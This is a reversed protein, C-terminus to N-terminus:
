SSANRSAVAKRSRRLASTWSRLIACVPSDSFDDCGSQAGSNPPRLSSSVTRELGGFGERYGTFFLKRVKLGTEGREVKAMQSCPSACRDLAGDIGRLSKAAQRSVGVRLFDGKM